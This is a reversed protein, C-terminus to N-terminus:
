RRWRCCGLLAALIESLISGWVGSGLPSTSFRIMSRWIGRCFTGPAPTPGPVERSQGNTSATGDLTLFLLSCSGATATSCSTTLIARTTPCTMGLCCISSRNPCTTMPGGACRSVVCFVPIVGPEGKSLGNGRIHRMQRLSDETACATGEPSPTRQVGRLEVSRIACRVCYQNVCRVCTRVHRMQRLNRMQRLHRM